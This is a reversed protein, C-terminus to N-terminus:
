SFQSFFGTYSNENVSHARDSSIQVTECGYVIGNITIDRREVEHDHRHSDTSM